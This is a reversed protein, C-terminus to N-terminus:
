VSENHLGTHSIGTRSRGSHQSAAVTPRSLGTVGRRSYPATAIVRTRARTFASVATASFDIGAEAVYIVVDVAAASFVIEAEGVAESFAEGIASARISINADYSAGTGPGFPVTGFTIDGFPSQAM